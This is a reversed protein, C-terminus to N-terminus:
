PCGEARISIEGTALRETAGGDTKIILAGDSDIDLADAFYETGDPRIVRIRRGLVFSKTRYESLISEFSCESLAYMEDAIAEALEHIDVARDTHHSLATAIRDIEDPLAGGVNLGIGVILHSLAGDEGMVGECLIGCLKKGGLYIDNVWKIETDLGSLRKVARAVCLSAYVTVKLAASPLLRKKFLMSMYLGGENSVFTRGLRGRGQTQRKALFMVDGDCERAYAKADSNTSATVPVCVTKYRPQATM